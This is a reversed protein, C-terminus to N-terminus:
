QSRMIERYERELDDIPMHIPEYEFGTERKLADLTDSGGRLVNLLRVGNAKAEAIAIIETVDWTANANLPRIVPRKGEIELDFLWGCVPTM